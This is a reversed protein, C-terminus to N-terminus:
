IYLNPPYIWRIEDDATCQMEGDKVKEVRRVVPLSPIKYDDPMEVQEGRDRRRKFRNHAIESLLIALWANKFSYVYGDKSWFSMTWDFAHSAKEYQFGYQLLLLARKSTKLEKKIKNM